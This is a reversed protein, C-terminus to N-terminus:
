KVIECFLSSGDVEIISSSMGATMAAFEAESVSGARFGDRCVIVGDGTAERDIEGLLGQEAQDEFWALREEWFREAYSSFLVTGGSRAVRVAEAMVRHRDVNFAALGNQICVVADFRGSRFGLASANMEFLPFRGADPLLERAMQLSAASTDIGAAVRCKEGLRQLVRGYGCGLELVLAGEDLRDLVFRIEAELYRRIREPALDYCQKLREAALKEVYYGPM